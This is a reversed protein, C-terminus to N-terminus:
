AKLDNVWKVRVPRDVQAEITAAPFRFTAPNSVLGYGWIMTTPMPAPLIQQQFQRAAIEYYDIKNGGITGTKPMVVLIALPTVYKPITTPELSGGPVQAASTTCAIFLWIRPLLTLVLTAGLPHELRM